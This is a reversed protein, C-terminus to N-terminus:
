KAAGVPVKAKLEEFWHEVVNILPRYNAPEAPEPVLFRRGDATVDWDRYESLHPFLLAPAGIRRGNAVQAAMVGASGQYFLEDGDRSWVPGVGRDISIQEARGQPYARVYVAEYGSDSSTYAVWRSDPSLRADRGTTPKAILPSPVRDKMQWVSLGEPGARHNYLLLRGDKSYSTGRKSGPSDVVLEPEGGRDVDVKFLNYRGKDNRTFLVSRGDPSFLGFCDDPGQTLSHMSTGDVDAVWLRRAAGEYITDVVRRGDPSLAPFNYARPQLSTPMTHGSRYKWVLRTFTTLGTGYALTGSASVSYPRGRSTQRWSGGFRTRGIDDVVARPQGTQWTGPNFLMAFLKGESEYILHGTPAYHPGAASDVLVQVEGSSLRLAAVSVRGARWTTFLVSEGGPLMEPWLCWDAEGTTRYLPRPAGGGSSVSWLGAEPWRGFIIQDDPGWTAGTTWSSPAPSRWIPQTPGGDLPIKEFGRQAAWYAVWAGDPSFFPDSAGETGELPRPTWDNLRRAYLREGDSARAQFVVTQGDPSVAIGGDLLRLGSDGLWLHVRTTGTVGPWPLLWRVAGVGVAGMAIVAVLAPVAFRAIRRTVSAEHSESRSAGDGAIWQIEASLDAANQWREDPNKALCRQVVRELAPPTVPQLTALATPEANMINGILSVQSDGAFARRGTLMEYLIAGLAWLDTRADADKGELQEPAMYQLTGLITGRATVPAAETVAHTETVLAPREGHRLLKALGFDLLKATTVGSRGAGSSTLMVNGPKLDRHIIGHKHAADLADAIQAAIDLAQPLPLPGKLLRDALTRGALHEMVLFMTGDHEGIDHLTCIHPHNLAAVARAEREFRARRDPDASLEAPLIKIAVTRDLRTDRAKYVEGMGGAGILGLIEYPGLRTGAALFM